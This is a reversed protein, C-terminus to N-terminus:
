VATLLSIKEDDHIVAFERTQGQMILHDNGASAVPASGFKLWANGELATVQWVKRFTGTKDTNSAVLPPSQVGGATDVFARGLPISNLVPSEKNTRALVVHIRAM